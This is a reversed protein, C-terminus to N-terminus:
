LTQLYNYIIKLYDKYAPIVIRASNYFKEVDLEFDYEHVLINRLKASQELVKALDAPIIKESILLTFSEKYTDPIRKARDMLITTNIDSAYDVILQFDREATRTVLTDHEFDTFPRSVLKDLEELLIGIQELKKFLIEKPM